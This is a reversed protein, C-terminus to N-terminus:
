LVMNGARLTDTAAIAQNNYLWAQGGQKVLIQGTGIPVGGTNTIMVPIIFQKTIGSITGMSTYAGASRSNGINLASIYYKVQGNGNTYVDFSGATMGSPLTVTQKTWTLLTNVDPAYSEFSGDTIRADRIMPKFTVVSDVVTGTSMVCALGIQTDEELTFECGDGYDYAIRVTNGSEDKKSVMIYYTDITGGKQCGNVIYTGKKLVVQNSTDSVTFCQFTTTGTVTGKGVTMIGDGNDTWTIGASDRTTQNYPYRAHNKKTYGVASEVLALGENTAYPVNVWKLTQSEEDYIHAQMRGEFYRFGHAGNEEAVEEARHDDIQNQLNGAPDEGLQDRVNEFWQEFESENSQQFQTLDAQIQEYLKTTDFQAIASIIGCRNTDLRTDSINAQTISTANASITIDALAIEYVSTNRTLEPRTPVSAPTGQIVFLGIDRYDSNLDLRAVVTDIRSMTASASAITIPTEESFKKICGQIHCLGPNVVIEMNSSASVQLNSSDNLLVGDTMLSHYLERLQSSDVARDYQPTGDDAYTVVSDMPYAYM